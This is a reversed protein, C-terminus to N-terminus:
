IRLGIYIHNELDGLKYHGRCNGELVKGMFDISKGFVFNGQAYM